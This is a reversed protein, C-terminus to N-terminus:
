SGDPNPRASAPPQHSGTIRTFKRVVFEQLVNAAASEGVETLANEFIFAAGNRNAAPYYLDSIGGAAISGM